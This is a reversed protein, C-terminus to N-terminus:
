QILTDPPPFTSICLHFTNLYM